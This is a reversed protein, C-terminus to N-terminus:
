TGAEELALVFVAEVQRFQCNVPPQSVNCRVAAEGFHGLEAVALVYDLDRLNM